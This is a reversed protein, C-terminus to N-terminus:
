VGELESALIDLKQFLNLEVKPMSRDAMSSSFTKQDSITRAVSM